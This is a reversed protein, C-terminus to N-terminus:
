RGGDGPRSPRVAGPPSRRSGRRRAAPAGDAVTRAGSDLEGAQQPLQGTKEAIQQLGASLTAAGAAATGAGSRLSNAGTALRATGDQLQALGVVLESSGSSARDAGDALQAAGDAAQELSTHVDTFGVYVNKLYTEGVKEELTQTVTSGITSAINGVILNASDNTEVSLKAQVAAAPDDGGVSAVDASFGAPVTLVAYVEGSALQRAADAAGKETWAFNSESTSSTLEDTLDHGLALTSGDSATAGTDENVVAAPVTDLHHTPDLNASTLLGAYILPILAIAAFVVVLRPNVARLARRLVTM